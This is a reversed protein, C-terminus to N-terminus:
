GQMQYSVQASSAQEVPLTVAAVVAVVAAGEVVMVVVGEVAGEGAVMGAGAVVVVVVV